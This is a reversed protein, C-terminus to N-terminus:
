RSLRADLWVALSLVLGRAIYKIEPSVALLTMGNLLTAMILAGFLVGRATGRGGKLSVGGIVCAAVADLEMLDGVTTTSAGSYATQLFGTLAVAAGMIAYAAVVSSDVDIGALLSAEENGGIAYLRRGFATHETLILAAAASLALLVAPLPVGRFANTVVVFLVALQVCLFAKLFGAEADYDMGERRARRARAAWAGLLVVALVGALDWGAVPPLYTTTLRAYLNPAGAPSVPVTANRIVLWFLGKFVLLGGLTIIFAPMRQSVILRGMGRWMLLALAAAALMAAPASWGQRLILVSAVGGILGVGSGASLDIHGPLIVMFMGLALIATNSLEIALMSLNRAGLFDPSLAAFVAIIAGFALARSWDGATLKGESVSM